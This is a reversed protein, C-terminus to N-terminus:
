TVWLQDLLLGWFPHLVVNAARDSVFRVTSLNVMPVIPAREMTSRDIAAWEELSAAPDVQQKNLASVIM